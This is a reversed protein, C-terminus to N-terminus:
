LRISFRGWVMCMYFELAAGSHPEPSAFLSLATQTIILLGFHHAISIPSAFKTRFCLEFIYYASYIESFLFMADGVTVDGKKRSIPTSFEAPGAIFSFVPYAGFCALSFMVIAGLHFYTFSRRRRENEPQELALWVKGYLLRLVWRELINSLLVILLLSLTLILSGYPILDTLQHNQLTSIKHAHKAHETTSNTM